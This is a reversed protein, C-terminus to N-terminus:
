LSLGALDEDDLTGSIRTRGRVKDMKNLYLLDDAAHQLLHSRGLGYEGFSRM